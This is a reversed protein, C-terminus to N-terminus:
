ILGDRYLILGRRQYGARDIGGDTALVRRVDARQAIGGCGIVAARDRDAVAIRAGLVGVGALAAMVIVGDGPGERGGVHAAVAAGASLGDRDLILGLRHNGARDIGGDTALVRRVDARQAIGG